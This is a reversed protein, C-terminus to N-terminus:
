KNVDPQAQEVTSRMTIVKMQDTATLSPLASISHSHHPHLLQAGHAVFELKHRQCAEVAQVMAHKLQGLAVSLAAHGGVGLQLLYACCAARVTCGRCGGLQCYPSQGQKEALM